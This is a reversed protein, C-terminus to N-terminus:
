SRSRRRLARVLLRQEGGALETVRARVPAARLPEERVDAADDLVRRRGVGVERRRRDQAAAPSITLPVAPKM